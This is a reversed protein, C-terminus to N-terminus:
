MTSRTAPIFLSAAAQRPTPRWRRGDPKRLDRRITQHCTAQDAGGVRPQRRSIASISYTARTGFSSSFTKAGSGLFGSIPAERKKSSYLPSFPVPILFLSPREVFELGARFRTGHPAMARACGLANPPPQPPISPHQGLPLRAHLHVQHSGVPLPLHNASSDLPTSWSPRQVNLRTGHPGPTGSFANAGPPASLSAANCGM